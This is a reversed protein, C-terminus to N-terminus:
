LMGALELQIRIGLWQVCNTAKSNGIAKYRPGDSAPKNRYPVDTHGDPFGQLRECEIPTLRRVQQGDFCAHHHATSLTNQPDSLKGIGSGMRPNKDDSPRGQVTMTNIPLVAHRDTVTLCPSVNNMPEVANGGNEPKRGIWNGPIGFVMNFGDARSYDNCTTQLCNAVTQKNDIVFSFTEYDNRQQGGATLCHSTNQYTIPILHGQQADQSSVSRCTRACLTPASHATPDTVDQKTERSPASDRRVSEREFLVKAPDFGKRASAIVFVRKRRQALGFYQADIVRWAVTRKPGIIYGSKSWKQRSEGPQAELPEVTGSICDVLTYEGALLGLLHGFANDKTNLVGPVNEWVAIAENGPRQEDIANLLDGYILSLSGREDALSGQKGAVSFAQCPTGGVLINPAEILGSRILEPLYSMDGLNAVHPWHHELVACPFPEIESFWSPEFGLPGWAISASEIGSCVSGYKLTM